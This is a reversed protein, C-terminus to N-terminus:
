WSWMVLYEGYCKKHPAACLFHNSAFAFGCIKVDYMRKGRALIGVIIENLEESPLLLLRGHLTRCTAEVLAGGEPVWRLPRSM